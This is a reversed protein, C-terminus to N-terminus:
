VYSRLDENQGRLEKEGFRWGDLTHGDTSRSRQTYFAGCVSRFEYNKHLEYVQSIRRLEQLFFNWHFGRFSSPLAATRVRSRVRWNEIAALSSWSSEEAWDITEISGM